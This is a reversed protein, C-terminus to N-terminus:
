RSQPRPDTPRDATTAGAPAAPASELAAKPDLAAGSPILSLLTAPVAVPEVGDYGLTTAVEQSPLPYRVGVDVLLFLAGGQVDPAAQARILLGSGPQVEIRDALGTDEAGGDGKGAATAPQTDTNQVAVETTAGSDKGVAIHLCPVITPEPTVPRPPVPPYLKTETSRASRPAAGFAGATLEIPAVQEGAYARATDPSGLMLLADTRTLPSLGDRWLVFFQETGSTRIVFVQGIQRPRDGVALGREGLGQVDPARLDPGAPLANLWGSHIPFPQTGAYGLAALAGAGSIRFRRGNWALYTTGDPSRVLLGRDQALAPGATAGVKLSVFPREVNSGDRRQTSCVQWQRGDLRRPEPLFDPAGPIGVPLGHPVGALSNRSVSRVTVDGGLLLRGSAQNLVPRLENDVYVYRAGTEKELILVGPERWALSGGPSIFGYITVGVIALIALMTGTFTATTFRRMPTQAADPEARLLASVLRGVVFYHAQLQDRRSQM